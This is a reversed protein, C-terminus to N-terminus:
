EEEQQKGPREGSVVERCFSALGSDAPAIPLHEAGYFKREVQNQTWNHCSSDDLLPRKIEPCLQGAWTPCLEVMSCRDLMCFVRAEM